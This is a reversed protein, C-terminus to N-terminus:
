KNQHTHFAMFISWSLKRVNRNASTFYNLDMKATFKYFRPDKATYNLTFRLDGSGKGVMLMYNVASLFIFCLLLIFVFFVCFLWLLLVSSRVTLNSFLSYLFFMHIHCINVMNVTRPSKDSSVSHCKRLFLLMAAVNTKNRNVRQPRLHLSFSQSPQTM